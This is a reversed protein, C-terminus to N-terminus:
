SAGPETMARHLWTLAAAYDRKVTRASVDLVAATEEVTMGFLVRCEVVRARRANGQELRQLAEELAVLADAREETLVGPEGHSAVLDELSVPRAPPRTRSYDLLIHRMALSAVALLHSPSKWDLRQKRHLKLYAEHVLATTNLTLDGHWRARRQHARAHVEDYILAFLQGLAERDGRRVEGLLRM